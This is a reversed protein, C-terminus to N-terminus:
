FSAQEHVLREFIRHALNPPGRVDPYETTVEAIRRVVAAVIAAELRVGNEPFPELGLAALCTKYVWTTPTRIDAPYWRHLVEFRRRRVQEMVTQPAKRKCM